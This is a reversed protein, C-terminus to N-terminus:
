KRNFSDRICMQRQKSGSTTWFAASARGNHPLGEMDLGSAVSGTDVMGAGLRKGFPICSQSRSNGSTAKRKAEVAAAAAVADEDFSLRRCVHGSETDQIVESHHSNTQSGLEGSPVDARNM